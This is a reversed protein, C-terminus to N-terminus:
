AGEFRYHITHTRIESPNLVRMSLKSFIDGSYGERDGHGTWSEISIFPAGPKSWIAFHPFNEVEVCIAEGSDHILRLRDSSAELFCLADESFVADDLHLIRGDQLDIPRTEDTFLGKASIRPVEADEIDAFEIRYNAREGSQTGLVFAPHHGISYPLANAGSNVVKMTTTLEQGSIGFGIELTFPFPFHAQTESNDQLSFVVTCDSHRAVTFSQAAAFGHVPMPYHADSVRIKGDRCWGVVPFLVPASKGWFDTDRQWMLERSGITWSQLEAGRPSILASNNGDSIRVM